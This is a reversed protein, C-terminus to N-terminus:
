SSKFLNEHKPRLKRGGKKGHTGMKLGPKKGRGATDKSKEYGLIIHDVKKKSFGM